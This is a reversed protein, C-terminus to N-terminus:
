QRPGLTFGLFVGLISAFCFVAAFPFVHRFLADEESMIRKMRHYFVFSFLLCVAIQAGLLGAASRVSM